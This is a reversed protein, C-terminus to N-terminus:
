ICTKEESGPFLSSKKKMRSRFLLLIGLLVFPISLIQGMNLFGSEFSFQSQPLKFFEIFFRFGFILFFFSGALIGAGIKKVRKWLFFLFLSTFFYFFSEYLQAPHLPIGAVGEIPHLFIVGWPVDTPMGLIEQNSFNGIRICSGVFSAPIVIADLVALITLPVQKKRHQMWIFLSLAVLIGLAGGHSALGGEWIKLSNLPHERYFSWEYFLIHGLRAGIVTGLVSLFALRDSLTTAQSKADCDKLGFNELHKRLIHRVLLYGIFFSCAFLIGYWTIPHNVYPLVIFNRDPDWVLFSFIKFKLSLYM